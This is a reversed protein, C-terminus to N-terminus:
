RAPRPVDLPKPGGIIRKLEAIPDLEVQPADM